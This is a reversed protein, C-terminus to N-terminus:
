DLPNWDSQMKRSPMPPGPWYHGCKPCEFKEQYQQYGKSLMIQPPFTCKCLHYGLAQAIQAEGLQVAREAEDLRRTVSEKEESEPLLDKADKAAGLATRLLDFGQRIGELASM